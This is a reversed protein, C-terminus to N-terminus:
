HFIETELGEMTDSALTDSALSSTLRRYAACGVARHDPVRPVALPVVRGSVERHRVVGRCNDHVGSPGRSHRDRSVGSGYSAHCRGGPRSLAFSMGRTVSDYQHAHIGKECRCDFLCLASPHFTTDRDARHEHMAAQDDPTAVITPNLLAAGHEM